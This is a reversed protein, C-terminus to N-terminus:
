KESSFNLRAIIPAWRARDQTIQERLQAPPGGLVRLGVESFRRHTEPKRLYSEIADNLKAVIEAPMNPPGFIAFWTSGVLDIGSEKMTPVDPLFDVRRESAVALIRASQTAPTYTPFGTDIRGGLLDVMMPPTGRYAIFNGDVGARAALVVSCLHGMTGPGAHGISIKNDKSKAYALLDNVTNIGLKPDAVLVNPAEAVLSIPTFDTDTDYGISKEMLPRLVAPGVATLLLTYGDPLAKAVSIGAIVGGAGSKTETVIPQGIAASVDSALSRGIFDTAAGSAFAMVLTIPRTPWDEAAAPRLAAGLMAAVAVLILVKGFPLKRMISSMRM